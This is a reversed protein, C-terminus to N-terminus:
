IVFGTVLWKDLQEIFRMEILGGSSDITAQTGTDINKGNGDVVINNLYANGSDKVKIIQLNTPASPLFYTFGNDTTDGIILLDNTTTGTTTSNIVVVQLTSTVGTVIGAVVFDSKVKVRIPENPINDTPVDSYSQDYIMFNGRLFGRTEASSSLYMEYYYKGSNLTLDTATKSLYFQGWNDLQISNDATSFVLKNAFDKPKTKVVLTAGTYKTFDFFGVFTNGSYVESVFFKNLTKGREISLDYVVSNTLDLTRNM